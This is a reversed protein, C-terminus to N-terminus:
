YGYNNFGKKLNRIENILGTPQTYFTSKVTALEVLDTTYFARFFSDLLKANEFGSVQCLWLGEVFFQRSKRVMEVVLVCINKLM